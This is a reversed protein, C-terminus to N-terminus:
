SVIQDGGESLEVLERFEKFTLTGGRNTLEVTEFNDNLILDQNIEDKALLKEEEMDSKFQNWDRLIFEDNYDTKCFRFQKGIQTQM